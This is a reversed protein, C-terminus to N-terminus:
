RFWPAAEGSIAFEILKEIRPLIDGIGTRLDPACGDCSIIERLRLGIVQLQIVIAPDLSPPAAGEVSRKTVLQRALENVRLRLSEAQRKLRAHDAEGIRFNIM